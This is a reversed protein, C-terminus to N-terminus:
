PKEGGSGDAGDGPQPTAKALITDLQRLEEVSLGSLDVQHNHDHQIPAGGPGSHEASIRERFKDPRNGKLLFILMTDSYKRVKGVLTGGQYVPELVGDKARRTAEEELADAYADAAEQELRCFEKATYGGEQDEKRWAYVTHPSVRAARCGATLTGKKLRAALYKDQRKKVPQLKQEPRALESVELPM